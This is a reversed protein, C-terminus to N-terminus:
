WVTTLAHDWPYSGDLSAIKVQLDFLLFRIKLTCKHMRSEKNQIIVIIQGTGVGSDLGLCVMSNKGHQFLFM